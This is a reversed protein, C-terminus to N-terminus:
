AQDSRRREEEAESEPTAIGEPLHWRRGAPREEQDPWRGHEALYERANEEREREVDGSVGMRYLVNLLLVALGAGTFLAWAEVGTGGPDLVLLVLGAVILAAPIGYRVFATV